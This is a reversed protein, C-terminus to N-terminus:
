DMLGQDKFSFYGQDSVIVHDLLRINMIRCAEALQRTLNKDMTSPTLSGSPHNHCLVIATSQNRLAAELILRIDVALILAIVILQFYNM